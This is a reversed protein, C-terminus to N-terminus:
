DNIEMIPNFHKDSLVVINDSRVYIFFDNNIEKIFGNDSNKNEIIKIIQLIQEESAINSIGPIIKTNKSNEKKVEDNIPKNVLYDLGKYKDQNIDSIMFNFGQLNSETGRILINEDKYSSLKVNENKPDYMTYIAEINYKDINKLEIDLKLTFDHNFETKLKYEVENFFIKLANERPLGNILNIFTDKLMIINTDGYYLNDEYEISKNKPNTKLKILSKKLINKVTEPYNDINIDEINNTNSFFNKNTKPSTIINMNKNKDNDNNNKICKIDNGNCM